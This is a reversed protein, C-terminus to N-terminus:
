REVRLTNFGISWDRSLDVTSKGLSSLMSKGLSSKHLCLGVVDRACAVDSLKVGDCAIEDFVVVAGNVLDGYGQVM